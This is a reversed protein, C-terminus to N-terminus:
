GYEMTKSLLKKGDPGTITVTPPRDVGGTQPQGMQRFRSYVELNKGLIKPEFFISTGAKFSACEVAESNYRDRENVARVKLVPQGLVVEATEGSKIAAWPGQSFSVEWDRGKPGGYAAVGSALSYTGVPLQINAKAATVRFRVTKDNQGNLYLMSITGTVSNTGAFKLALFGTPSTDRTLVVRAPLGNSRRGEIALRYFKGDENILSSLTERPVYQDPSFRPQDGILLSYSSSGYNDFAGGPRGAYLLLRAPKGDFNAKAELLAAPSWMCNPEGGGYFNAQLLVRCLMSGGGDLPQIFDPTIFEFGQPTKRTPPIRENDQLKGDANLDFYLATARRGQYEVAAWKRGKFSPQQVFSLGSAKQRVEQLFPDTKVEETAGGFGWYSRYQIDDKAGTQPLYKLDFVVAGAPPTSLGSAPGLDTPGPPAEVLTVSDPGSCGTIFSALTLCSASVLARRVIKNM